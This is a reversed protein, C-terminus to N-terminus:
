NLGCCKKYKKGSGCPCPDNRGTKDGKVVTKVPLGSPFYKLRAKHLIDVCEPIVDAANKRLAEADEPEMIDGGRSIDILTMLIHMASKAEQDPGTLFADWSDIHLQMAELFGEIWLEWVVADDSDIFYVPEYRDAKLDDAITNLHEMVLGVITQLEPMDIEESEDREDLGAFVVPLWSDPALLEPCVLIGALLGDLTSIPIFGQAELATELEAAYPPLDPM